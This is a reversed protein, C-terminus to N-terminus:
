AQIRPCPHQIHIPEEREDDILAHAQCVRVCVCVDRADHRQRRPQHRRVCVCVCACVATHTGLQSSCRLSLSIPSVVCRGTLGLWDLGADVATHQRSHRICGALWRIPWLSALCPFRLWMGRGGDDDSISCFSFVFLSSHRARATDKRTKM